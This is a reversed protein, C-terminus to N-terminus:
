EEDTSVVVQQFPYYARVLHNLHANSMIPNPAIVQFTSYFGNEKWREQFVSKLTAEFEQKV